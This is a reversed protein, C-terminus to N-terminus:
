KARFLISGAQYNDGLYRATYNVYNNQSTQVRTFSQSNFTYSQGQSLMEGIPAPSLSEGMGGLFAGPPESELMVSFRAKEWAGKISTFTCELHYENAFENVVRYEFKFSNPEPKAITKVVHATELSSQNLSRITTNISSYSQESAEASAAVMYVDVKGDPWAPIDLTVIYEQQMMEMVSRNLTRFRLEGNSQHRVVLGIYSRRIEGIENISIEANQKLLISCRFQTSPNLGPDPHMSFITPANHNYGIWDTLRYPESDGGTPYEWSWRAMPQGISPLATSSGSTPLVIGCNGNAAKWWNPYDDTFPQPYRVPKYKSLVNIRDKAAAGTIYGLNYDGSPSSIGLIQYPDELGIPAIIKGNSISM